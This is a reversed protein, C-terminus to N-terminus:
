LRLYVVLSNFTNKSLQESAKHNDFWITIFQNEGSGERNNQKGNRYGHHLVPVKKVEREGERRLRYKSSGAETLVCVRVELGGKM